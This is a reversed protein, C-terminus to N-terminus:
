ILSSSQISLSEKVECSPAVDRIRAALFPWSSTTLYRWSFPAFTFVAESTSDVTLLFLYNNCTAFTNICMIRSATMYCNYKCGPAEIIIIIYLLIQYVHVLCYVICLAIGLCLQHLVDDTHVCSHESQFCNLSPM